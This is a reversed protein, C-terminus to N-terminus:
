VEPLTAAVKYSRVLNYFACLEGKIQKGSQKDIQRDDIQRDQILTKWM